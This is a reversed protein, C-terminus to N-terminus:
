KKRTRVKPIAHVISAEDEERNKKEVCVFQVLRLLMENSINRNERLIPFQLVFARRMFHNPVM